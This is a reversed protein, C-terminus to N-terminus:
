HIPSLASLIQFIMVQDPFKYCGFVNNSFLNKGPLRKHGYVPADQTISLNNDDEKVFRGFISELNSFPIPKLIEIDDGFRAKSFDLVEPDSALDELTLKQYRKYVEKLGPPPAEHADLLSPKEDM